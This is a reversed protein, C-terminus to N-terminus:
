PGPPRAPPQIVQLQGWPINFLLHGDPWCNYNNPPPAGCGLIGNPVDWYVDTFGPYVNGGQGEAGISTFSGGTTDTLVMGYKQITKAIMRGYGTLLWTDFDLNAPFRFIMGEKLLSGPAWGDCRQAPYVFCPKDSSTVTTGFALMHNVEHGIGDPWRSAQGGPPIAAQQEEITLIMGLGAISSASTGWKYGPWAPDELFYGPNQTVNTMHGGWGAGWQTVTQGASNVVTNGYTQAGWLEWLEDTSPRYIIVSLDNGAAPVMNPPIPVRNLQAELAAKGWQVFTPDWDRRGEVQM